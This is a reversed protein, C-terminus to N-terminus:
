KIFTKWHLLKHNLEEWEKRPDSGAVIGAGSYLFIKPGQILCSRIGVAFEANEEDIWGIPAAYLGRDFMEHNKIFSLAQDQPHGGVAPTPHLIDLLLDDTIGEKLEGCIQSYLHCCHMTTRISRNTVTPIQKCLPSLTAIIQNQVITWEHLDKASQELEEQDQIPRTGALADCAIKRKIRRYLTEPTAGLFALDATPQILFVTQKTRLLSRIMSFPDIPADSSIAVKRALVVKELQKKEIAALAEQVLDIWQSQTPFHHISQSRFQYTANSITKRPCTRLYRPTFFCPPFESWEDAMSPIFHRYGFQQKGLEGIGAGAVIQNEQNAWLIKPYNSINQLWTILDETM